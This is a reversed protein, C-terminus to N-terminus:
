QAQKRNPLSKKMPKTFLRLHTHKHTNCLTSVQGNFGQETLGTPLLMTHPCFDCYFSVLVLMLAGMHIQMYKDKTCLKEIIKNEIGM